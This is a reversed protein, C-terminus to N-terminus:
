RFIAFNVQAADAGVLTSQNLTLFRFSSSTRAAADDLSRGLSMASSGGVTYTVAYNADPLATAFNISYDGAGNDTISSVNGSARIAVTGTGNFNVWARCSYVPATGTSNFAERIGLPSVTKTSVTGAVNEATSSFVPIDVIGAVPTLDKDPFTYTRSATNTNTFFSTFTNAVNKFNIKFLTLGVYGNSADKNAQLENGSSGGGWAALKFVLLIDANNTLEGGTPAVDVTVALKFYNGSIVPTSTFKYRVAQGANNADQIYVTDNVAIGKLGESVDNNRSTLKSIYIFTAAARTSANFRFDGSGPDSDTTSSDFTYNTTEISTPIDALHAVTGDKDQFTYTRSGTNSNTFFSIVTNATNKFNHKFL